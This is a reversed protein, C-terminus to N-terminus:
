SDALLSGPHCNLLFRIQFSAKTPVNLYSELGENLYFIKKQQIQDRNGISCAVMLPTMKDNNEVNLNLNKRKVDLISQVVSAQGNQCALHM